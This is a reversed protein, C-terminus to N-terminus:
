KMQQYLHQIIQNTIAAPAYNGKPDLVRIEARTDSNNEDLEVQYQVTNDTVHRWFALKDLWGTSKKGEPALSVFYVGKTRDRDQVTFDSHDLALGVRRWAHDFPEDDTLITTGDAKQAIHALGSATPTTTAPQQGAAPVKGGLQQMIGTLMEAERDPSAPALQWHAETSAVPNNDSVQTAVRETVFVETRDPTAPNREIRTRFQEKQGSSWLGPVVKGLTRHIVDQPLKRDDDKWDTQLIGRKQDTTLLKYGQGEWWSVLVPWVKDAPQNIVLWSQCGNHELSIGDAPLPQVTSQAATTQGASPSGQVLAAGGTQEGTQHTAQYESWSAEKVVYHQSTEPASLNPPVELPNAQKVHHYDVPESSFLGTLTSCGTLTTLTASCLLALRLSSLKM